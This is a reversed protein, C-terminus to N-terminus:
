KFVDLPLDLAALCLKVQQIRRPRLPVSSLLASFLQSHPSARCGSQHQIARWIDATTKQGVDSPTSKYTELWKIFCHTCSFNWSFNQHRLIFYDLLDRRTNEDRKAMKASNTNQLGCETESTIRWCHMIYKIITITVYGGNVNRRTENDDCNMMM